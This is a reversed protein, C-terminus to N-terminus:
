LNKHNTSARIARSRQDVRACLIGLQYLFCLPIALICQSLVDPPTLLMGLIFAMVIMYPRMMILQEVRLIRLRVLVVCVIPVQFCLGFLLLLKLSFDLSQRMDPMLQVSQPVLQIFFHFLFPLVVTYAFIVGLVFLVQSTWVFRFFLSREVHYLGPAIFRWLQWLVFPMSCLLAMYLALQMPAFVATTVSTAIIPNEPPLYQTLPHIVFRYIPHSFYFSLVFCGFFWLVSKMLRKRLEFLYQLVSQDL